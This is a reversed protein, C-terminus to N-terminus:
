RVALTTGRKASGASNESGSTSAPFKQRMHKLLMRGSSVVHETFKASAAEPPGVRLVRLLSSHAKYVRDGGDLHRVAVNSAVIAARIQNCLPAYTKLLRRHRSCEVVGLHFDFDAADAATADQAKIADAITVLHRDLSAIDEPDRRSAVISAAFGELCGRLSFLEEFEGPDTELVTWGHYAQREVLGETELSQLAARVTGASVNLERSLHLEKLRSGSPRAGSMIENRLSRVVRKDLTEHFTM